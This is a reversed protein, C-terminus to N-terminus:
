NRTLDIASDLEGTDSAWHLIGDDTLFVVGAADNPAGGGVTGDDRLYLDVYVGSYFIGNGEESYGDLSWERREDDSFDQYADITYIGDGDIDFIEVHYTGTSDIWTGSIEDETLSKPHDTVGEVIISDAKVLPEDHKTGGLARQMEVPGQYVGQINVTDDVLIGKIGCGSYDIVFQNYDSDYVCIQESKKLIQTVEALSVSVGKGVYEDPYRMLEEWTVETYEINIGTSASPEPDTNVSDGPSSLLESLDEYGEDYAAFMNYLFEVADNQSPSETGDFNVSQPRIICGNPNDPNPSVEISVILRYDTGKVVSDVKVIATNTKEDESDTYWVPNNTYKDFVEAFTYPLNQSTAFPKHAQVTAINDRGGGGGVLSAVVFVVVLLVVAGIIIPLKKRKKPAEGSVGSAQKMPIVPSGVAPQVTDSLNLKEGCQQCFVADDPAKAGCKPCFM